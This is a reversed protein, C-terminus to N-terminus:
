PREDGCCCRCCRSSSLIIINDYDSFSLKTGWCLVLLCSTIIISFIDRYNATCRPRQPTRPSSQIAVSQIRFTKDRRYVYGPIHYYLIMIIRVSEPDKSKPVLNLVASPAKVVSQCITKQVVPPPAAAM